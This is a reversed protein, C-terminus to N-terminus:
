LWAYPFVLFAVFFFFFLFSFQNQKWLWRHYGNGYSVIGVLYTNRNHEDKKMKQKTKLFFKQVFFFLLLWFRFFYGFHWCYKTAKLNMYKNRRPISILVASMCVYKCVCMATCIINVQDKDVLFKFEIDLQIRKYAHTHTHTHTHRRRVPHDLLYHKLIRFEWNLENIITIIESCVNRQLCKTSLCYM